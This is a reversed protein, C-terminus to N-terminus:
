AAGETPGAALFDGSHPLARGSRIHQYPVEYADALDAPVQELRRIAFQLRPILEGLIELACECDAARRAASDADDRARGGGGERERRLADQQERRSSSLVAMAGGSLDAAARLLEFAAGALDEADALMDQDSLLPGAGQFLEDHEAGLVLAGGIIGASAAPVIRAAWARAATLACDRGLDEAGGALAEAQGQFTVSREGPLPHSAAPRRNAPPIAAERTRARTPPTTSHGALGPRGNARGNRRGILKM